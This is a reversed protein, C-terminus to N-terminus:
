KANALDQQAKEICKRREAGLAQQMETFDIANARGRGRTPAPRPPPDRQGPLNDTAGARKDRLVARGGGQDEGMLGALPSRSDKFTLHPAMTAQRPSPTSSPSSSEPWPSSPSWRQSEPTRRANASPRSFPTTVAPSWRPWSCPRACATADAASSPKAAGNAPSAPSLRSAPWAQSRSAASSGLEPLEAILTRATDARRGARVRAPGGKAGPRRAACPM